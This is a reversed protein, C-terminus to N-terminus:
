NLLNMAVRLEEQRRQLGRERQQLFALDHGNTRFATQVPGKEARLQKGLDKIHASLQQNSVKPDSFQNLIGLLRQRHSNARVQDQARGLVHGSSYLADAGTTSAMLESLTQVFQPYRRQAHGSGGHTLRGLVTQPHAGLPLKSDHELASMLARGITLRDGLAPLQQALTATQRAADNVHQLYRGTDQANKALGAIQHSVTPLLTNTAGIQHTLRQRVQAKLGPDAVLLYERSWAPVKKGNSVHALARDLHAYARRQVNGPGAASGSGAFLYRLKTGKTISAIGLGLPSVSLAELGASGIISLVGPDFDSKIAALHKSHQTTDDIFTQTGPWGGEPYWSRVIKGEPKRTASAPEPPLAHERLKHVTFTLPGVQKKTLPKPPQGFAPDQVWFRVDGAIVNHPAPIDPTKLTTLGTAKM